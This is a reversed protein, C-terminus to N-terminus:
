SSASYSRLTDGRAFFRRALGGYKVAIVRLLEGCAEGPNQWKWLQPSLSVLLSIAIEPTAV